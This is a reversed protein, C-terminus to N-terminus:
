FTYLMTASWDKELQEIWTLLEIANALSHQHNLEKKNLFLKGTIQKNIPM